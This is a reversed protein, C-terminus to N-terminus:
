RYGYIIVLANDPRKPILIEDESLNNTLCVMLMLHCFEYEGPTM